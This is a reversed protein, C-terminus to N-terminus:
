YNSDFYNSKCRDSHVMWLLSSVALKRHRVLVASEEFVLSENEDQGLDLQTYCFLLTFYIAQNKKEKKAIYTVKKFVVTILFCWLQHGFSFAFIFIKDKGMSFLTLKNSRLMHTMLFAVFTYDLLQTVFSVKNVVFCRRNWVDHYATICHVIQENGTCWYETLCSRRISM